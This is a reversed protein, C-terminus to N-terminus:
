GSRRRSTLNTVGDQREQQRLSSQRERQLYESLVICLRTAAVYNRGGCDFWTGDKALLTPRPLIEFGACDGCIIQMRTAVPMADKSIRAKFVKKVPLEEEDSRGARVGVMSGLSRRAWFGWERQLPGVVVVTWCPKQQILRLRHIHISPFTRIWPAAYFREGFPTEEVYAGWLGISIFRKPHDHLDRAWDDGVFHHLYIAFLSTRLLTWRYLYTPCRKAGNIEEM